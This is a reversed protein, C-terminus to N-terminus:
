EAYMEVMNDMCEEVNESVLSCEVIESNTKALNIVNWQTNGGFYTGVVKYTQLILCV